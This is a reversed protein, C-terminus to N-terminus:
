GGSNVSISILPFITFYGMITSARCNLGTIARRHVCSTARGNTTGITSIMGTPCIPSSYMRVTCSSDVSTAVPVGSIPATVLVAIPVPLTAVPSDCATSMDKHHYILPLRKEELTDLRVEPVLPPV